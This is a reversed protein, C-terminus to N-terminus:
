IGRGRANLRSMVQDARLVGAAVALALYGRPQRPDLRLSRLATRAGASRRGAAAQAFARQGLVWSHGRRNRTVVPHKDLLYALGEDMATWRGTFYSGAGWRVRVLPRGVVAVPGHGVLRLLLDYDEGYGHPLEEDVLGVAELASRRVLYSSPHAGTVRSRGLAEEDVVGDDPVRLRVEGEIEIAIGTVCASTRPSADLREVQLRLKEPEWRDDDDCFAVLASTTATIGTNRAGALGPTRANRVLTLTRAPGLQDALDPELRPDPDGGDFVVVLHVAGTWDQGLVSRAALRLLEPRDRTAIVVDVAETARV